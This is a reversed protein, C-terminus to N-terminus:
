DQLEHTKKIFSEQLATYRDRVCKINKQAMMEKIDRIEVSTLINVM